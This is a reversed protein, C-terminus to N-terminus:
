LEEKVENISSEVHRISFIKATEVDHERIANLIKIHEELREHNARNGREINRRGHIRVLQSIIDYLRIMLENDTCEAIKKHFVMDWEYFENNSEKYEMMKEVIPILEAILVNCDNAMAVSVALPDLAKRVELIELYGTLNLSINPMIDNFYINPTLNNVYTGGGQTRSLIDLAVFKKIAERVVSRSVGLEKSLSIEPTIKDGVDWEGTLIKEQVYNFVKGVKDDM